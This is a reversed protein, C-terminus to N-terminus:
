GVEKSMFCFQTSLLGFSKLTNLKTSLYVLEYLPFHNNSVELSSFSAFTLLWAVDAVQYFTETLSKVYSVVNFPTNVDFSSSLSLSIPRFRIHRAVNFVSIYGIPRDVYNECPIPSFARGCITCCRSHCFQKEYLRELIRAVWEPIFYNDGTM